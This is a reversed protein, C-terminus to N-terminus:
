LLCYRWIRRNKGVILQALHMRRMKLLEFEGPKKIELLTNMDCPNGGYHVPMIVKTRNSIKEKVSNMDMLLTDPYVDCPIPVAGVVSIAQFSAVFTLSPVIVEDGAKVGLAELALHLASTGTNTAM